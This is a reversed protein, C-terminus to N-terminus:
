YNIITKTVNLIKIYKNVYDGSNHNFGLEYSYFKNLKNYFGYSGVITNINYQSLYDFYYINHNILNASKYIIENLLRKGRNLSFTEYMHDKIYNLNSNFIINNNKILNNNNNYIINLFPTIDYNKHLKNNSLIDISLNLCVLDNIIECEHLYLIDNKKYRILFPDHLMEDKFLAFWHLINYMNKNYSYVITNKKIEYFSNFVNLIDQSNIKRLVSVYIINIFINDINKIIPFYKNNKKELIKKNYIIFIKKNNNIIILLYDKYKTYNFFKINIFIYRKNANYPAPDQISLPHKLYKLNFINKKKVIIDRETYNFFIPDIFSIYMAYDSYIDNDLPHCIDPLNNFITFIAINKTDLIYEKFIDFDIDLKYKEKIIDIDNETNNIIHYYYYILMKGYDKINDIIQIMTKNYYLDWNNHKM